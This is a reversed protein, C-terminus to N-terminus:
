WLRNVAAAVGKTEKRRARGIFALCVVAAIAAVLWGSFALSDNGFRYSEVNFLEHGFGAISLVVAWVVLMVMLRVHILTARNRYAEWRRLRDEKGGLSENRKIMLPYVVLGIAILAWIAMLVEKV